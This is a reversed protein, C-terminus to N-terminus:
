GGGERDVRDDALAPQQEVSFRLWLGSLQLPRAVVSPPSVLVVEVGRPQCLKQLQVLVAMGASNLYTVGRLDLRVQRLDPRGLLLDTITRVLPRRAGETFEGHVTSTAVDGDLATVVEPEADGRRQQEPGGPTRAAGNDDM